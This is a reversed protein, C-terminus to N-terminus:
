DVYPVGATKLFLRGISEFEEQGINTEYHAGHWEWLQVDGISVPKLPKECYDSHCCSSAADGRSINELGSCVEIMDAGCDPCKDPETTRLYPRIINIIGDMWKEMIMTEGLLRKRLIAEVDRIECPALEVGCDKAFAKANEYGDPIIITATKYIPPENRNM